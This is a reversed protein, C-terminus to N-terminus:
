SAAKVVISTYFCPQPTLKVKSGVGVESVSFMGLGIGPGVGVGVDRHIYESFLVNIANKTLIKVM